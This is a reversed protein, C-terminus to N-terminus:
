NFPNEREVPDVPDLSSFEPLSYNSIMNLTEQEKSSLINVPDRVSTIFTPLESWYLNLEVLAEYMGESQLEIEVKEFTSLPAYNSIATLVSLLNSVDILEFELRLASTYIEENTRLSQVATSDIGVVLIGDSDVLQNNFNSLMWLGPNKDPLAILSKDGTDLLGIGLQRLTEIKQQLVTENVRMTKLETSQQSIRIYAEKVVIVSLVVAVVIALVPM